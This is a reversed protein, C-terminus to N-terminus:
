CEFPMKQNKKLYFKLTDPDLAIKSEADLVALRARSILKEHRAECAM